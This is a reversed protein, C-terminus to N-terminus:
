ENQLRPSALVEFGLVYFQALLSFTGSFENPRLILFLFAFSAFQIIFSDLADDEDDDDFVASCSSFMIHVTEDVETGIFTEEAEVEVEEAAEVEVEFM